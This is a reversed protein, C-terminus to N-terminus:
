KRLFKFSSIILLWIVRMLRLPWIVADLLFRLAILYYPIEKSREVSDMTFNMAFFVTLILYITM